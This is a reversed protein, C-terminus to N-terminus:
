ADNNEEPPGVNPLTPTVYAALEWNMDYRMNGSINPIKLDAFVAVQRLCRHLHARLMELGAFYLHRHEHNRTRDPFPGLHPDNRTLNMRQEFTLFQRIAEHMYDLLLFLPGDSLAALEVKKDVLITRIEQLSRLASEICNDCCEPIPIEKRGM